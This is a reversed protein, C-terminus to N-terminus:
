ALVRSSHALLMRLTVREKGSGPERGIVFGPLIEGLPAELDLIGRDFLLMAMATTALIKTVSALDFITESTVAPSDGEYTFHGLPDRAVIQGKLLAGYAEGPFAHQEM